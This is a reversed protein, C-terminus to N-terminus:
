AKPPTSSKEVTCTDEKQDRGLAFNFDVSHFDVGIVETGDNITPNEKLLRRALRKLAPGLKLEKVLSDTLKMSLGPFTFHSHESDTDRFMFKPM